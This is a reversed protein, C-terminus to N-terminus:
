FVKQSRFHKVINKLRQEFPIQLKRLLRKFSRMKNDTLLKTLVSLSPRYNWQAALHKADTGFHPSLTAEPTPPDTTRTVLRNPFRCCIM